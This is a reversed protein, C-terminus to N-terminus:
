NKDFDGRTQVMGVSYGPRALPVYMQGFLRAPNRSISTGSPRAWANIPRSGCTSFIM